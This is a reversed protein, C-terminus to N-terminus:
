DVAVCEGLDGGLAEELHAINVAADVADLLAAARKAAASAAAKKAERNACVHCMERYM